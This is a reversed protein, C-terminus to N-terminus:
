GLPRSIRPPRCAHRCAAPLSCALQSVSAAAMSRSEAANSYQDRWEVVRTAKPTFQGSISIRDPNVTEQNGCWNRVLFLIILACRVGDVDFLFGAFDVFAPKIRGSMVTQNCTRTRGPGGIFDLQGDEVTFHLEKLRKAELMRLMDSFQGRTVQLSPHLSTLTSAARLLVGMVGPWTFRAEPM